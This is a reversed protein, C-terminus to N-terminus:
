NMTANTSMFKFSWYDTIYQFIFMWSLSSMESSRVLNLWCQFVQDLTSRSRGHWIADCRSLTKGQEAWRRVKNLQLEMLVDINRGPGGRAQWGVKGMPATDAKGTPRCNLIDFLQIFCGSFHTTDWSLHDEMVPVIFKIKYLGQWTFQM